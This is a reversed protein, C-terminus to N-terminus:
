EEVEAGVKKALWYYEWRRAAGDRANCSRCLLRLKGVEWDRRYRTVRTWRSCRAPDWGRAGPGAHDFELAETAACIECAGGMEAVLVARASKAWRLVRERNEQWSM